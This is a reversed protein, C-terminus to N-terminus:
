YLIREITDTGAAGAADSALGGAAYVYAGCLTTGALFRPGGATYAISTSNLNNSTLSTASTCTGPSNGNPCLLSSRFAASAGGTTGQVFLFNAMALSWGGHVGFSPQGYSANTFSPTVRGNSDWVKAVEVLSSAGGNAVLTGAADGGVALLYVDQAVAGTFSSPAAPADAMALSFRRRATVLNGAAAFSGLTATSATFTAREVGKQDGAAACTASATTCYGGAVFLDDGVLTAAAQARDTVLSPQTVWAGLAGPPLPVDGAPAL